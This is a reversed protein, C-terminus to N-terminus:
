SLWFVTIDFIKNSISVFLLLTCLAPTMQKADISATIHDAIVVCSLSLVGEEKQLLDHRCVSALGYLQYGYDIPPVFAWM